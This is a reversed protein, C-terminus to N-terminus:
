EKSSPSHAPSADSRQANTQSPALVVSLPTKTVFQDNLHLECWYTGEEPFPWLATVVLNVGRNGGELEATLTNPKSQKGSPTKTILSVKCVGRFDGGKLAIFLTVPCVANNEKTSLAEVGVTDIIRVLSSVGDQETLVKECIVFTNVLPLTQM